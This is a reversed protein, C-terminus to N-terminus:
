SARRPMRARIEAARDRPDPIYPANLSIRLPNGPTSPPATRDDHDQNEAPWTLSPVPTVVSGSERVVGGYSPSRDHSRDSDDDPGTMHGTASRDHSRDAMGESRDHSRDPGTMHGTREAREREARKAQQQGKGRGRRKKADEIYAGALNWDVRKLLTLRWWGPENSTPERPCELVGLDVLVRMCVTVDRGDVHAYAAIDDNGKDGIEYEVSGDEYTVRDAICLVTLTVKFFASTVWEPAAWRSRKKGRADTYPQRIKRMSELAEMRVGHPTAYFRNDPPSM